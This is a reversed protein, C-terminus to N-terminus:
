EGLKDSLTELDVDTALKCTTNLSVNNAKEIFKTM